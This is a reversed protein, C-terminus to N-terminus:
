TLKYFKRSIMKHCYKFTINGSTKRGRVFRVADKSSTKLRLDAVISLRDPKRQSERRRSTVNAASTEDCPVGTPGVVIRGLGSTRGHRFLRSEGTARRHYRHSSFLYLINTRKFWIWWCLLFNRQSVSVSKFDYVNILNCNLYPLKKYRFACFRSTHVISKLTATTTAATATRARESTRTRVSLKLSGDVAAARTGHDDLSRVLWKRFLGVAGDM